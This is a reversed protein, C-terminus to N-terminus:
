PKKNVETPKDSSGKDETAKDSASKSNNVLQEGESMDETNEEMNAERPKPTKPKMTFSIRQKGAEAKELLEGARLNNEDLEQARKLVKIAEEYKALKILIAGLETQYESDDPKLKTAQRLAREAEEDMQIKNYARGLNFFAEANEPERETIRKYLKAAMEFAKDAESLIMPKGSRIDTSKSNSVKEPKDKIQEEDRKLSLAIGLQFYADASEPNLKIAQKLAQIAEELNNEDLYRRGAALAEDSSSFVPVSEKSSQQLNLDGESNNRTTSCAVLFVVFCITLVILRM